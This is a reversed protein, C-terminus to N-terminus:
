DLKYVVPWKHGLAETAAMYAKMVKRLPQKNETEFKTAIKAPAAALLEAWAKREPMAVAMVKVGKGKLTKINKDVLDQTFPGSKEEMERGVQVIIDAVEKPLRSLKRNNMTLSAVTM